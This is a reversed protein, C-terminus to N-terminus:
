NLARMSRTFKRIRILSELWKFINMTEGYNELSQNPFLADLYTKYRSHVGCRELPSQYRNPGTRPKSFNYKFRFIELIAESQPTDYFLRAQNLLPRMIGFIGEIGNTNAKLFLRRTLRCDTPIICQMMSEM